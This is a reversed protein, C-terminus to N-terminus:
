RQNHVTEVGGAAQLAHPPSPDSGVHLGRRTPEGAELTEGFGGSRPPRLRTAVAVRARRVADLDNSLLLANNALLLYADVEFAVQAPDEYPDLEGAEQAGRVLRVLRAMWGAQFEAVLERVPGPQTDLEAAASAFFCGGPFVRREVHSLFRECLLRLQALPTAGQESPTVVDERFIESATAITALQLEEKSGFHAYLGSKSIGLHSALTGISLGELGETTALSAAANLIAARTQRGDARTRRETASAM